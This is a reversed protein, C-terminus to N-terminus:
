LKGPIYFAAHMCQIYCLNYMYNELYISHQMCASSIAYIICTTKWTYLISCAHVPYLM